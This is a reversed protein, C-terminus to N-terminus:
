GGLSGQRLPREPLAGVSRAALDRPCKRQVGVDAGRPANPIDCVDALLRVPDGPLADGPAVLFTGRLPVRRRVLCLQTLRTGLRTLPHNRDPRLRAALEVALRR